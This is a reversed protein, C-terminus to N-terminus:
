FANANFARSKYGRGKLNLVDINCSPVNGNTIANLFATRGQKTGLDKLMPKMEEPVKYHVENGGVVVGVFVPANNSYDNTYVNFVGENSNIAKDGIAEEDWYESLLSKISEAIMDRLQSETLQWGKGKVYKTKGNAYNIVDSLAKSAKSGHYKKRQIWETSQPDDDLFEYTGYPDQYAAFPSPYGMADERSHELNGKQRPYQKNFAREAADTFKKTRELDKESKQIDGWDDSIGKGYTKVAANQYTKWDLENVAEAVMKRLQSESIRKTTFDGKPSAWRSDRGNDRYLSGVYDDPEEMAQMSLSGPMNLDYFDDTDKAGGGISRNGYNAYMDDKQQQIKDPEIMDLIEISDFQEPPVLFVNEGFYRSQYANFTGNARVKIASDGYKCFQLAELNPYLNSEIFYLGKGIVGDGSLNPNFGKRKVYDLMKKQCILYGVPNTVQTTQLNQYAENIKTDYSNPANKDNYLASFQGNGEKLVKKVSEAIMNRLQTENLKITEKKM